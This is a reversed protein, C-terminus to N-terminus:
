VLGIEPVERVASTQVGAHRDVAAKAADVLRQPDFPKVLWAAAGLREARARDEPHRSGSCVVVRTADGSRHLEELVTWGDLGPLMVDQVVADPREVAIRRLATAGDGALMTEFGAARLNVQLVVLQDPDDEVILVRPRRLLSV